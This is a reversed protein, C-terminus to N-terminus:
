RTSGRKSAVQGRGTGLYLTPDNIIWPTSWTSGDDRNCVNFFFTRFQEARYSYPLQSTVHDAETLDEVGQRIYYHVQGDPTCSMGLTWWGTETIEPGKFDAGRRNGRITFFASDKEHRADTKSRFQVFMGPWYVENTYKPTRRSFFFGSSEEPVKWAHTQVALRFGFTSGSRDEWEEFPPMYVRVVCSPNQSVPITGRLRYQCNVILDDQQMKYSRTGPIGSRVTRILLSGQSGPLGGEPTPVRKMYDPHGRKIGEYWRGNTSKGTPLRKHKDIEESSKPLNQVFGWSEDEFDDGVQPVERGSGPVLPAAFVASSLLLSLASLAFLRLSSTSM